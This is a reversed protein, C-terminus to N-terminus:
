ERDDEGFSPNLESRKYKQFDTGPTMIHPALSKLLYTYAIGDEVDSSLNRIKTKSQALQLIEFCIM